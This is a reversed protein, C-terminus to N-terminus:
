EWQFAYYLCPQDGINQIAHSINSELYYLDGATAKYFKDDIQMKTNGSIMLVFEAGGHTHPEHSKIHPNLTTVHMEAENFMATSRHYYNRLGGQDHPKFELDNFDVMFSGGSSDARNTNMSNKAKFTLLYFTAPVTGTNQYQFVDGPMIMVVSGAGLNKHAEGLRIDVKGEKIIILIEAMENVSDMDRIFGPSITLAEAKLIDLNTTNGELIKRMDQTGQKEIKLDNWPYVGSEVHSNQAMLTLSCFLLIVFLNKVHLRNLLIIPIRQITKTINM